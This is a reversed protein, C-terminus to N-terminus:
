WVCLCILAYVRGTHREDWPRLKKEIKHSENKAEIALLSCHGSFDFLACGLYTLSHCATHVAFSFRLWGLMKIPVTTDWMGPVRYQVWKTTFVPYTFSFYGKQIIECIPLNLYMRKNANSQHDTMPALFASLVGRIHFPVSHLNWDNSETTAFPFVRGTWLIGTRLFAVPNTLAPEVLYWDQV